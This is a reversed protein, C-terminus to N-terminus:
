ARRVPVSLEALYDAPSSSTVEDFLYEEYVDGTPYYGMEGISALLRRRGTGTGGYDGRAHAVAWTGAPVTEAESLDDGARFCMRLVDGSERSVLFGASYGYPIGKRECGDYFEVWDGDTLESYPKCLEKGYYYRREDREEIRVGGGAEMGRRIQELRIRMMGSLRM